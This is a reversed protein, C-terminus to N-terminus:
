NFPESNTVASQAFAVKGAGSQLSPEPLNLVAEHAALFDQAVRLFAAPDETRHLQM